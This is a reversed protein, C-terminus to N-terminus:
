FILSYRFLRDRVFMVTVRQSLANLLSEMRDM